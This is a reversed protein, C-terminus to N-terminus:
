RQEVGKKQTTKGMPEIAIKKKIDALVEPHGGTPVKM